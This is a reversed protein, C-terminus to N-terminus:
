DKVPAKTTVQIGQKAFLGKVTNSPQAGKSLWYSAREANIQVQKGEAEIPHYLGIEELPAGKTAERSDM